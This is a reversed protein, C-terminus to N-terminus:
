KLFVENSKPFDRNQSEELLQIATTNFKELEKAQISYSSKLLFSSIPIEYLGDKIKLSTDINLEFIIEPLLLSNDYNIICGLELFKKFLLNHHLQSSSKLVDINTSVIKSFRKEYEELFDKLEIM